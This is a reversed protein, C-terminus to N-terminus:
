RDPTKTLYEGRVGAFVPQPDPAVASSYDPSAFGTMALGRFSTPVGDFISAQIDLAGILREVTEGSTSVPYLVVTAKAQLGQSSTAVARIEVPQSALAADKAVANAKQGSATEWLSAFSQNRLEGGHLECLGTGALRFPLDLDQTDLMFIFPLIPAIAAPNVDARLAFPRDNRIENWYADLKACPSNRMTAGGGIGARSRPKYWLENIHHWETGFGCLANIEPETDVASRFKHWIVAV